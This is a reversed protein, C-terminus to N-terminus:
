FMSWKLLYFTSSMQKLLSSYYEFLQIFLVRKFFILNNLVRVVVTIHGDTVVSHWTYLHVKIKLRLKTHLWMKPITKHQFYIDFRFILLFLFLFIYLDNTCSLLSSNLYDLKKNCTIVLSGCPYLYVISLGIDCWYLCCPFCYIIMFYVLM